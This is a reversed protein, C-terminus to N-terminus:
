TRGPYGCRRDIAKNWARADQISEPTDHISWPRKKATLCFTDVVSQPPPSPACGAVLLALLVLSRTM